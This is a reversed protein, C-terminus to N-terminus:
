VQHRRDSASKVFILTATATWLLAVGALVARLAHGFADRAAVRLVEANAGDLSDAVRLAEDLSDRVAGFELAPVAAGALSPPLVLTWSYALTMVSGFVAVGLSNGLEFGVEEISAAMGGREVPAAGMITSSAFTVSAGIGLGFGAILALRTVPWASGAEPLMALCLTCLAALMFACCAMAAPRVRRMLRGAMPGAIFGAIAAPLLILAAELPSRQEVLQLYQSLALELGVMGTTGLCAAAFAGSFDPLRFLSLDLLPQPRARQRRLYLWGFLLGIGLALLTRWASFNQRALEKIAFVVATLGVLIQVSGTLDWPAGGPASQRPVLWLTLALAALVVPVNILFVSGWWYHELLLGAILPGLAMGGSAIGAWIGIALNREHLDVFVSRIIALTAPMMMAAGVGLGARGAILVSSGPAFAAVLSAIGFTALGCTFLLRHGHRDGLTGFGPLLGAVVIPYANLIWLRETNTAALDRTLAPLAVYLVTLDVCILFLGSAAIALVLWRRSNV